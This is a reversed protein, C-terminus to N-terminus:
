SKELYYNLCKKVYFQSNRGEYNALCLFIALQIGQILFMLVYKKGFYDGQALCKREMSEKSAPLIYWYCRTYLAKSFDQFGFPFVNM